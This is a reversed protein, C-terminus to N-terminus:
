GHGNARRSLTLRGIGAVGAEAMATGVVRVAEVTIAGDPYIYYPSDFYVPDLEARSVFKDL